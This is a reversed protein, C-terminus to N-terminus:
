VSANGRISGPSLASLQRFIVQLVSPLGRQWPFLKVGFADEIKSCNLRSNLPRRAATPYESTSIAIISKPRVASDCQSIIERAFGFWSVGGSAAMHYTGIVRAADSKSSTLVQRLVHVTAEAICKSSTPAGIQDNVIRLEERERALRLITLLFNSGRPSYVWSTRLILHDCGSNAIAREGAIKTRGYVNLPNTPDSEVYPNAKMGDFVYDTSYHILLARCQRAEEALVGPATANISHALEREGEAKDVATYAAANIIVDPRFARVCERIKEPRTLDLTARDTALVEGLDTLLSYLDGGVQGNKGTLLIKPRGTQGRRNIGESSM